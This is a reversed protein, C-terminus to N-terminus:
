EGGRPTYNLNYGTKGVPKVTAIIIIGRRPMTVKGINHKGVPKVTAIIIIGRRPLGSTTNTYFVGPPPLYYYGPNWGPPYCTDV